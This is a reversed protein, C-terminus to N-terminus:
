YHVSYKEQIFVDEVSRWPCSNHSDALLYYYKADDLFLM